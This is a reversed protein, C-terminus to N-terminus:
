AADDYAERGDRWLMGTLDRLMLLGHRLRRVSSSAHYECVVPVEVIRLSRRRAIRLIEVDFVFGDTRQLPFLARAKAGDFAKFGCQTDHIGPLAATRVIWNFIRGLSRRLPQQSGREVSGPVARSGVAVDAGGELAALFTDAAEIPLSLDADAFLVYRGHSAAVGRRVSFGKGRNVGNDLVIVNSRGSATRTVERDAGPRGGDLVVILESRYPRSDLFALVRAVTSGIRDVEDFAPIIVSLFVDAAASPQRSSDIM